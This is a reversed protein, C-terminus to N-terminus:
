GELETADTPVRRSRVTFSDSDLGWRLVTRPWIRILREDDLARAVGRIEVGRGRPPDLTALDDVVFSVEPREQVNRYKRTRTFNALGGIDITGADANITFGVPRVQPNGDPGITALRGLRQGALYQREAQAFPMSATM